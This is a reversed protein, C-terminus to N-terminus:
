SEDNKGIFLRVVRGAPVQAGAPPVQRTVRGVRAPDAVIEHSVEAVLGAAAVKRMALERTYGVLGPAPPGTPVTTGGSITRPRLTFSLESLPTSGIASLSPFELGVSDNSATPIGKLTINANTLTLGSTPDAAIAGLQRATSGFVEGFTMRTPEVISTDPDPETSRPGALEVPLGRVSGDPAHFLKLAVPQALLRIVGLDLTDGDSFVVAVHVPAGGIRLGWVMGVDGPLDMALSGRDVIGQAVVAVERERPIVVEVLAKVLPTGDAGVVNGILRM